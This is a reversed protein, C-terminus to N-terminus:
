YKHYWLKLNCTNANASSTAIRVTIRTNAPVIAMNVPIAISRQQVSIRTVSFSTVLVEAGGLGTYVGFQYEADNNLIALAYHIDFPSTVANTAIFEVLAGTNNWAAANATVVLAAALDPVVYMRSHLHDYILDDIANSTLVM